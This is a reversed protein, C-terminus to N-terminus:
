FKVVLTGATNFAPSTSPLSPSLSVPSVSSQEWHPSYLHVKKRGDEYESMESESTPEWKVTKTAGTIKTPRFSPYSNQKPKTTEHYVPM